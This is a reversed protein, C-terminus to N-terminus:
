HRLSRGRPRGLAKTLSVRVPKCLVTRLTHPNQCRQQLPPKECKVTCAFGKPIKTLVSDSETLRPYPGANQM